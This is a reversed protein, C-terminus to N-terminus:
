ADHWSFFPESLNRGAIGIPLFFVAAGAYNQDSFFVLAFASAVCSRVKKRDEARPCADLPSIPLSKAVGRRQRSQRGKPQRRAESM